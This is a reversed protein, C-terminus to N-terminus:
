GKSSDYIKLIELIRKFTHVNRYSWDIRINNNIDLFAGGKFPDSSPKQTQLREYVMKEIKILWDDGFILGYNAYVDLDQCRAAMSNVYETEEQSKEIHYGLYNIALMNWYNPLDDHSILLSSISKARDLWLNDQNLEYAKVFLYICHALFNKNEEEHEVLGLDYIYNAYKLGWEKKNGSVFCAGALANISIPIKGDDLQVFLKNKNVYSHKAIHGLALKVLENRDRPNEVLCLTALCHRYLDTEGSILGEVNINRLLFDVGLDISYQLKCKIKELM